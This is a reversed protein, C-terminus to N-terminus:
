FLFALGGKVLENGLEGRLVIAGLDYLVGVSGDVFVGGYSPNSCGALGQCYDFGSLWGFAYGVDLKPYVALNPKLWVNWAVGVTPVVENWTYSGAALWDYSRRLYDVGVEVMFQDRITPHKLVGNAVPFMFSAGIGYLGWYGVGGWVTPGSAQLKAPAPGQVVDSAATMGAPAPTPEASTPAMPAPSQAFATSACVVSLLGM